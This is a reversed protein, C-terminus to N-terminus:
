SKTRWEGSAAAAADRIGHWVERLPLGTREAIRRCAEFEPIRDRRGFRDVEKVDAPGWPTDVIISRRALERRTVTHRRVGLTGTEALLIDALRGAAEEDSLFALMVGPRGKKMVVPTIWADRAGEAMLRALVHALVEPREDDLNTEAQVLRREMVSDSRGLVLRM